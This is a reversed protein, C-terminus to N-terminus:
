VGRKDNDSHQLAEYEKLRREYEALKKELAEIRAELRCIQMALPDPFRIQDLQEEITPKEKKEKRVVRGPM